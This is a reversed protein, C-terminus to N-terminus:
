DVRRHAWTGTEGSFAPNLALRMDGLMPMKWLVGFEGEREERLELYAPRSRSRARLPFLLAAIVFLFTALRM